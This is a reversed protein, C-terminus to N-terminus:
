GPILNDTVKCHCQRSVKDITFSAECRITLCSRCVMFSKNICWLILVVDQRGIIISPLTVYNKLNMNPNWEYHLATWLKMSKTWWKTPSFHQTCGSSTPCPQGKSTLTVLSSVRWQGPTYTSCGTEALARRGRLPGSSLRELSAWYTSWPIRWFIPRKTLM